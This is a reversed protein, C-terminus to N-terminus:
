LDIQSLEKARQLAKETAIVINKHLQHEDFHKLAAETTGGKSAVKTIWEPLTLNHHTFLEYSGLFTQAVLLEAEKQAFGMNQASELLANMFYFVYAPGSGSIATACDILHENDVLLTKGITSLLQEIYYTEIKPVNATHTYVTMGFGLLAPLNPMARFVRNINLQEQITKMPIGAMFSLVLQHKQIFPKLEEFMAMSEQPKVALIILDFHPIDQYSTQIKAVNLQKLHAVQRPDKELITLNNPEVFGANLIARSFLLGINGGGIVSIKVSTKM